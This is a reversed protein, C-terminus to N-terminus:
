HYKLEEIRQYYHNLAQTAKEKKGLVEAIFTFGEKWNLVVDKFQAVVHVIQSLLPYM